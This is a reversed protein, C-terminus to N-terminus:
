KKNNKKNINKVESNITGDFVTLSINDKIRVDKTSKIIRDKVRAISYGLNLQREPNHAFIVTESEELQQYTKKFLETFSCFIGNLYNKVNSEINLLTNRFNQVVVRFNNEINKYREIIFETSEQITETKRSILNHTDEINERFSDFISREHRELFMVAEKWSKSITVAAISPTSVEVDAALSILPIDKDHGIASIVPVPFNSVERVLLENNFAQLSEFSGGGRIIVLVEIDKKRITKVALLLDAIASQGEVRSDVMKIKFGHNGINSLFDALVAGQRSTIVGIKQPYAPLARKKSEEFLGEESLKKKLKEYEKKLLGEGAIEITEAIFSLRGTAKYIDPRGTAIIKIGEKVEVGFLEYRSKWIICNIVSQDKEDRLSFYVHGSPYIDVKGIEGIIKAKCKKLEANLISIYKSVTLIENKKSKEM